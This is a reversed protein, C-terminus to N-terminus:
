HPSSKQCSNNINIHEKTRQKRLQVISAEYRSADSAAVPHTRNFFAPRSFKAIHVPFGRLRLKKKIFNCAQLKILKLGAVKDFVSELM